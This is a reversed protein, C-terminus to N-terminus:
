ARTLLYGLFISDRVSPTVVFSELTTFCTAPVDHALVRQNAGSVDRDWGALRATALWSIGRV